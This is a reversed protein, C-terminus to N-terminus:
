QPARTLARFPALAAELPWRDARAARTAQMDQPVVQLTVVRVDGAAPRGSWLAPNVRVLAVAGPADRRVHSFRHRDSTPGIYVARARDTASLGSLEAQLAQWEEDLAPNGSQAADQVTRRLERAGAPDSRELTRIYALMETDRAVEDLARAAAEREARIQRSWAELYEGLTVPALPPLGNRTIVVLTRGDATEFVPAGEREAIQRPARVVPFGSLGDDLAHDSELPTLDNLTVQLEAFHQTDAEPKLRCGDRWSTPAHLFVTIAGASPAQPHASTGLYLHAQYRVQDIANLARDKQMSTEAERLRAIWPRHVAAATASGYGTVPNDATPLWCDGAHSAAGICLLPLALLRALLHNRMAGASLLPRRHPSAIAISQFM